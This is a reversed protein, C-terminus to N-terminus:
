NYLWSTSHSNNDISCANPSYCSGWYNDPSPIISNPVGTGIPTPFLIFRDKGVQNPKKLGNTDVFLIFLGGYYMSWSMGSADIFAYSSEVPYGAGSMLKEGNANWCQSNDDNTCKKIVKFQSMFALFNAWQNDYDGEGNAYVMLDQQNASLIAQSAVSFAKKYSTKYVQTQFDNVLTPITMQAVIGIIGIVILVEALTFAGKALNKYDFIKNLFLKNQMCMM